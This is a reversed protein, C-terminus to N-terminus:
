PATPCPPMRIGLWAPYAGGGNMLDGLRLADKFTCLGNRDIDCDRPTCTAPARLCPILRDMDALAVLKDQDLDGPLYGICASNLGNVTTLCTWRGITINRSLTVQVAQPDLPDAIAEIVGIGPFAQPAQYAIFDSVTMPGPDMDFHVIMSGVGVVASGDPESPQRWEVSCNAPTTGVIRWPCEPLRLQLAEIWPLIYQDSAVMLYTSYYDLTVVFDGCAGEPVILKLTGAYRPTDTGHEYAFYDSPNVLLAGVRAGITDTATIQPLERFVYRPDALRLLVGAAFPVSFWCFGKVCETDRDACDLQAVCPRQDGWYCFGAVCEAGLDACDRQEICPRPGGLVQLPQRPGNSLSFSDLAWQWARLREGNPSWESLLVECEIIDGTSAALEHTPEIMVENLRVASLSFTPTQTQGEAAPDLLAFSLAAVYAIRDRSM